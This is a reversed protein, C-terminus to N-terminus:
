AASLGLSIAFGIVVLPGTFVKEVKYAEPLLTDALMALLAGAAFAEILAGTRAGAPGLVAYGAAASIASVGIVALWMLVVRRRSWGARKLGSSSSMGEPLNSLAIAVLLALSVGGQLVTLGLVFSEPIGDLVSGLVIALPSADSQAGTPDKRTSGGYRDLLWNGATFVMAGVLVLAAVGAVAQNELADDVLEFSVSGILLGTGIAMVVAIVQRSPNLFYAILAGILLAAEGIAGWFFAEVV